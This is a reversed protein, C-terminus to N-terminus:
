HYFDNEHMDSLISRVSDINARQIANHLPIKPM